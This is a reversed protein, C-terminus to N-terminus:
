NTQHRVLSKVLSISISLAMVALELPVRCKLFELLDTLKMVMM